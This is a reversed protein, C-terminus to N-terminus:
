IGYFTEMLTEVAGRILYFDNSMISMWDDSGSEEYEVAFYNALLEGSKVRDIESDMWEVNSYFDDDWKLVLARDVDMIKQHHIYQVGFFILVVVVVASSFGIILRRPLLASKIEDVIKEFFSVREKRIKKLISERAEKGPRELVVRNKITKMITRADFLEQRCELCEKIHARYFRKEDRSLEGSLFLFGFRKFEPCSM